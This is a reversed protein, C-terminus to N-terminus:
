GGRGRFGFWVLWGVLWGVLYVCVGRGGRGGLFGLGGAGCFGYGLERLRDALGVM